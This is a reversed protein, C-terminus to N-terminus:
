RRALLERRREVKALMENLLLELLVLGIRSGLVLQDVTIRKQLHVGLQRAAEALLLRRRRSVRARGSAAAVVDQQREHLLLLVM